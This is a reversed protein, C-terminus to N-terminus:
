RELDKKDYTENDGAQYNVEFFSRTYVLDAKAVPFM